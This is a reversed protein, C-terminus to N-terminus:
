IWPTAYAEGGSSQDAEFTDDLFRSDACIETSFTRGPMERYSWSVVNGKFEVYGGEQNKQIIEGAMDPYWRRLDDFRIGEFALEYRREKQLREFTYSSYPELGARARLRNMGTVTGKLEDLMLLVDAYRIYIADNMIGSNDDSVASNIAHFFNNYMSSKSAYTYSATAIYKKLYFLTREVEKANDGTSNPLEVYGIQSGIMFRMPM